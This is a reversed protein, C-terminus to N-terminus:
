DKFLNNMRNTIKKLKEKTANEDITITLICGEKANKPLLEKPCNIINGNPLEVIAFNEEFRDITFIM